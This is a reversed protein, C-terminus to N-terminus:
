GNLTRAFLDHDVNGGCLTLGIQKGKIFGPQENALKMAAALPAAGAGEAVNHTDIFLAKMASAVEHDSVQVVEDVESFLIELAKPDPTRCAMGDAILTSVPAEIARRAAISLAYAPAHTSVVGILKMKRGLAARAAAAACIGSGLGIPVFVVDLDPAARFMELWGTAVGSVLDLHFSPVRHLGRQGALTAAHESAEQFDSGYEILEAGFAQMAANKERSNGHPVVITTPIRYRRAAFALSQGHNGRTASVIGPCDPQRRALGELYVLGGRVKFAGTPTHNEHKLWVQTGLRQALLPWAYQPTAPMSQYVVAAASEIQPLTPLQSM